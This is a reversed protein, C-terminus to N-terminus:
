GAALKIVFNVFQEFYEPTLRSITDSANNINRWTEPLFRNETQEKIKGSIILDSFDSRSRLINQYLQAEKEPLITVTLAAFGARLFGIEDSFPTPALLVKEMRLSNAACLAYERLHLIEDRVKIINPSESNKLISDTTTSFIFVNGAGCVDFNFIKANELGWTKLKKALSYAGQEEFSEGPRLEEKDTFVIIWNDIGKSYFYLASKLLHFVAIGNDNAGPSADVRDYHASFLFPTKGKFPFIGGSSRLSQQGQPFIFIHRNGEVPIVTCNLKLKEICELLVTYRDAHLSIFENFFDYPSTNTWNKTIM